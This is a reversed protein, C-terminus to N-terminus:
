IWHKAAELLAQGEAVNTCNTQLMLRAPDLERILPEVYEKPVQIHVIKGAAQIERYLDLHAPGNPPECPAPMYQVVRLYPLSLLRPLHHRADGGDLHYWLTGYEEASIDLEPVVFFEFMDTSLMCSVDSQMSVYPEPAWFPMWGANGYWFEHENQICACLRQGMSRQERAGTIIAERMWDPHDILSILFSETGMLMSLLDNAHLMCPKGVLFDDKGAFKAVTEYLNAHAQVWVDGHDYRFPSPDSFEVNMTDFWITQLDFRPTGGLCLTWGGMLLYSPIAEGGWWTSELSASLDALVWDPDLWKKRPTSPEPPSVVSNGNPSTVAICPRDLVEHNWLATLREKAKIWDPKYKM